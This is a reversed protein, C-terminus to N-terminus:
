ALKLRRYEDEILYLGALPVVSLEPRYMTEYYIEYLAKEVLWPYLLEHVQHLLSNKDLGIVRIPDRSLRGIYSFLLALGHRARWALLEDGKSVIRSGYVWLDVNERSAMTTFTLYQFSRYLTALDRLPPEKAAREEDSRAPEGEFDTFIFGRDRNYIFQGLHLDQHIRQKRLGRYRDLLSIAKSLYYDVFKDLLGMWLCYKKDLTCLDSLRRLAERSFKELRSSWVRIDRDEIPESGLMRERSGGVIIHFLAVEVGLLSALGPRTKGELLAKYFPYGGDGEGKVYELVISITDGAWRAIRYLRPIYPFNELALTRLILPELNNRSLLRYSKVVAESGFGDRHVALINSSELTLPRAEVVEGLIFSRTDFVEIDIEDIAELLTLYGETFEAEVYYENDLVLVREWPLFEPKAKIRTLPLYFRKNERRFKLLLTNNHEVQKEVEINGTERWPYWRVKPLWGNLAKVLDAPKM